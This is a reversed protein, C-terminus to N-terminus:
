ATFLSYSDRFFSVNYRESPSLNDVPKGKLAFYEEEKLDLEVFATKLDGSRSQLEDNKRQYDQQHMLSEQLELKLRKMENGHQNQIIRLQTEFKAQLLQRGHMADSLKDELDDVVNLHDAKITDILLNKQSLEIKLKQIDHLFQKKLILERTVNRSKEVDSDTNFTSSSSLFTTTDALTNNDLFGATNNNDLIGTSEFTNINNMNMNKMVDISSDSLTKDSGTKNTSSSSSHSVPKDGITKDIFSREDNITEEHLISPVIDKFQMSRRSHKSESKEPESKKSECKKSNSNNSYSKKSNSKQSNSASKGSNTKDAVTSAVSSNETVTQESIIRVSAAEVVSVSKKNSESNGSKYSSFTVEQSKESNEEEEEGIIDQILQQSDLETAVSCAEESDGM